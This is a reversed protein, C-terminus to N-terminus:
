RDIFFEQFLRPPFVQSMKLRYDQGGAQTYRMYPKLGGLGWHSLFSFGLMEEAHDQAATNTGMAVPELGQDGRVNNILDLLFTKMEALSLTAPSLNVIPTLM